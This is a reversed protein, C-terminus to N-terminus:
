RHYRGATEADVRPRLWEATRALGEELSVTPAWGLVEHARSPDSLLIQVESGEPRIRAQETIVEADNDTVKKCLEVVEAVSVTRGTGLQITAGPELDAVAARVFGDATDTVYTFDRKPSLDGLRLEGAGAILQSLVTPIVARMSQRPGFTNFPRLTVVPTEFSLAYSECMKDASIKTASYPSQGRLPHSETIPVQEPTGYVESTSTNVMRPTGHRRVAELVNLTGIVNTEVYSRPAVYSFPIAILAALHLVVDVGETTAMVHEPDRIDGLVVEARGERVAERFTDSEELWGTTGNSNYLCFARVRAGDALLREVTHSGIFGDAGTVLVTRGAISGSQDQVTLETTM